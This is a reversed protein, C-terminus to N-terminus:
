LKIQEALKEATEVAIGAHKALYTSKKSAHTLTDKYTLIIRRAAEVVPSAIRDDGM